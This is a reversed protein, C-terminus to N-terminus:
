GLIEMVEDNSKKPASEATKYVNVKEKVIARGNYEYGDSLRSAVTGSKAPDSTPTVGVIRQHAVDVQEGDRGYPGIAVGADMLMNEMDILYAEFSNMVDAATFSGLNKRMNNCLNKYDERMLCMKEMLNAFKKDALEGDRRSIQKKFNDLAERSIGSDAGQVADPSDMGGDMNDIRKALEIVQNAMKEIEEKTELLQTAAMDYSSKVGDVSAQVNNTTVRMRELSSFMESNSTKVGAMLAQMNASTTSLGEIAQGLGVVSSSLSENSRAILEYYDKSTLRSKSTSSGSKATSKKPKAPQETVAGDILKTQEESLVM